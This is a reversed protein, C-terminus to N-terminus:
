KKATDTLYLGTEVFIPLSTRPFVSLLVMCLTGVESLIHAPM